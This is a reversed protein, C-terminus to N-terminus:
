FESFGGIIDFPCAKFYYLNKKYLSHTAANVELSSIYDEITRNSLISGANRRM